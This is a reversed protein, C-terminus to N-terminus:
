GRKEASRLAVRGESLCRNVKTYTWGTVECIEAYSLGLGLLWLARCEDRKLDALASGASPWCSTASSGSGRGQRTPQCCRPSIM